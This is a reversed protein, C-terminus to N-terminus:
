EKGGHQKLLEIIDERGGVDRVIKVPRYGRFKDEANADAGHTLLLQVVEASAFKIARHLPMNGWGDRANVDAGKELLLSIVSVDAGWVAVHDASWIALHLPTSESSDRANVDAGSALLEASGELNERLVAEHLPTRGRSDWANVDAGHALLLEIVGVHVDWAAQHLLSRGDQNQQNVDAGYSLLLKAIAVQDDSVATWLITNGNRNVANVDAGDDILRKVAQFNALKVAKILKEHLELAQRFEDLTQGYQAAFGEGALRIIMAWLIDISHETCISDLTKKCVHVTYREVINDNDFEILVMSNKYSSSIGCEEGVDYFYICWGTYKSYDYLLFRRDPTEEIPLGFKNIVKTRSSSGVKIDAPKVGTYEFEPYPICGSVAMTAILVIINAYVSRSVQETKM